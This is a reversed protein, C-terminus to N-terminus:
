DTVVFGAREWRRESEYLRFADLIFDKGGCGVIFYVVDRYFALRVDTESPLPTSQLPHSHYIGLLTEDQLRMARQAAFLGTPEGEYALRPNEAVNTLPYISVTLNARGGLLGCCENPFAQRAHLFIEEVQIKTLKILASRLSIKIPNRLLLQAHLRAPM